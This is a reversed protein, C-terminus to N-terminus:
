FRIPGSVQMSLAAVFCRTSEKVWYIPGIGRSSYMCLHPTTLTTLYFGGEGYGQFSAEHVTVCLSILIVQQPESLREPWMPSLDVAICTISFDRDDVPVALQLLKKQTPRGQVGYSTTIATSKLGYFRVVLFNSDDKPNNYIM